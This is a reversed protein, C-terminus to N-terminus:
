MTIDNWRLTYDTWFSSYDTVQGKSFYWIDALARADILCGKWDIDDLDFGPCAAGVFELPNKGSEDQSETTNATKFALPRHFHIVQLSVLSTESNRACNTNAM